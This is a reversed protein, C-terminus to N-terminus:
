PQAVFAISNDDLNPSFIRASVINTGLGDRASDRDLIMRAKGPNFGLTGDDLVKTKQNFCAVEVQCLKALRTMFGQARGATCNTFTLRAVDNAKLAQGIKQLADFADHRKQLIQFNKVKNAIDREDEAKRTAPSGHPIPEIYRVVPDDWFLGKRVKQPDWDLDVDGDTADWNIVGGDPDNPVAGGHGSAVIVVGGAGAAQAAGTVTAVIKDWTFDPITFVRPVRVSWDNASFQNKVDTDLGAFQKSWDKEVAAAAGHVVVSKV